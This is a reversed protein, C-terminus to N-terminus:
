LLCMMKLLTESLFGTVSSPLQRTWSSLHRLGQDPHWRTRKRSSPHILIVRPVCSIRLFYCYRRCLSSRSGSVARSVFVGSIQLSTTSVYTINSSWWKFVVSIKVFSPLKRLWSSPVSIWWLPRPLLRKNDERTTTKKLLRPCSSYVDFTSCSSSQYPIRSRTFM